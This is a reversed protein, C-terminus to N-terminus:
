LLSIKAHFIPRGEFTNFNSIPSKQSIINPYQSYMDDLEALMEDYTLYGGQSGLNFNSPVSPVFSGSGSGSGSCEENKEYPHESPRNLRDKYFEKVDDIEIEYPYGYENLIDIEYESLDTIIFTNKKRIGHDVAVGLDAIQRLEQDDALVKVRSYKQASVYPTIALILLFTLIPKMLKTKTYNQYLSAYLSVFFRCFM